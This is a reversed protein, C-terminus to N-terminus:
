QFLLDIYVSIILLDASGGLSYHGRTAEHDLKMLGQQGTETEIGGAAIIAAAQKQVDRLTQLSGSRKVLNSDESVSIIKILTNVLRTNWDGTQTKLYPYATEFITPYGAQAEGRIGVLGYQLYLKEGNTLRAPEKQSLAKFDNEVLGALMAQVTQSLKLPTLTSKQLLYGTASLLIGLSFIAGKHTNVGKTASLMADEARMGLPRIQAMLATLDSQEFTSGVQVFQEFFPLLAVSSDIFTFLDMDTHTQHNIPDVLGPKPYCSVEYLLARQALQAIAQSTKM